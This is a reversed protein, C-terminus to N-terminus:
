PGREDWEAPSWQLIENIEDFCHINESAFYRDRDLAELEESMDLETCDRAYHHTSNLKRIRAVSIADLLDYYAGTEEDEILPLAFIQENDAGFDDRNVPALRVREDDIESELQFYQFADDLLRRRFGYPQYEDLTEAVHPIQRPDLLGRMGEGWYIDQSSEAVWWNGDDGLRAILWNPPTPREKAMHDRIRVSSSQMKCRADGSNLKHRVDLFIQPLSRVDARTYKQSLVRRYDAVGLDALLRANPKARHQAPVDVADHDAMMGIDLVVAHAVHGIFKGAHHTIVHRDAM